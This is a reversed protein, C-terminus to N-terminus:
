ERAIRSISNKIYCCIANLEFIVIPSTVFAERFPLGDDRITDASLFSVRRDTTARRAWLIPICIANNWPALSNWRQLRLRQHAPVTWPHKRREREPGRATRENEDTFSLPIRNASDGRSGVTTIHSRLFVRDDDRITAALNVRQFAVTTCM